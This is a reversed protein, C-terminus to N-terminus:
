SPRLSVKHLFNTRKLLKRTCHQMRVICYLLHKSESGAAVILKIEPVWLSSAQADVVVNGKLNLVETFTSITVVPFLVEVRVCNKRKRTPDDVYRFCLSTASNIGMWCSYRRSEGAEMKQLHNEYNLEPTLSVTKCTAKAVAKKKIM